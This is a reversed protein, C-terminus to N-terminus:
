ENVLQTKIIGNALTTELIADAPLSSSNTVAKGQFRTISYGRALVSHPSLAKVLSATSDLATMRRKLTTSIADSLRSAVVDLRARAPALSKASIGSLAVGARGLRLTARQLAERPLTPLIGQYYALEEKRGAILESARTLITQAMNDVADLALQSRNILWEAAATPTKVRMNAVYDLLTIDREHGIGIIVPIPFTAINRALNEDEFCQLDSTAGGGRIIVVGDWCDDDAIEELAAIISAPATNGQMVAPFLHPEFRLRSPNHLLQNMFDGYGAAGPASIVAIRQPVDPWELQRNDNIIGEGTLKRIIDQRRRLLDGMTYNPDLDSIVLSLGFVPHMTASARLMLKIGTTFATGTVAQFRSALTTYASAWIVGRAKALQQGRDDKQLLEMYCHGRRVAVDSLEATIWVNQTHPNSMISASIAQNLELLTVSAPM